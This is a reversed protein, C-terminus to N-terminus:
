AAWEREGALERALKRAEVDARLGVEALANCKLLYKPTCGEALAATAVSEGDLWCRVAANIVERKRGALVKAIRARLRDRLEAIEVAAATNCVKEAVVINRPEDTGPGYQYGTYSRDIPKYLGVRLDQTRWLDAIPVGKSKCTVPACVRAAHHSIQRNCAVYCLTGFEKKSLAQYKPAGTDRDTYSWLEVCILMCQSVMEDPDVASRAYRRAAARGVVRAVRLVEALIEAPMQKSMRGGM